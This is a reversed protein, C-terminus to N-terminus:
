KGGFTVQALAICWQCAFRISPSNVYLTRTQCPWVLELRIGPLLACVQQANRVM